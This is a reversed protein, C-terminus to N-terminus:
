EVCCFCVGLIDNRSNESSVNPDITEKLGNVQRWHRYIPTRGSRATNPLPIGHPKGPPPVGRTAKAEAIAPDQYM